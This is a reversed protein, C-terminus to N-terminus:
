LVRIVCDTSDHARISREEPSRKSMVDLRLLLMQDIYYFVESIISRATLMLAHNSAYDIGGVNITVLWTVSAISLNSSILVFTEEVRSM